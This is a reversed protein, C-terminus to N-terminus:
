SGTKDDLIKRWKEMILNINEKCTIVIMLAAIKERENKYNDKDALEAMISRFGSAIMM